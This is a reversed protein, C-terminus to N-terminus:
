VKEVKKLRDDIANIKEYLMATKADAEAIDLLQALAISYCLEKKIQKLGTKDYFIKTMTSNHEVFKVFRKFVSIPVGAIHFTTTSIDEVNVEKEVM